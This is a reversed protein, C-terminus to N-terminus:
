RRAIDRPDRAGTDIGDRITRRAERNGLGATAAAAILVATVATESVAGAGVLRGLRLAAAFLRRHRGGPPTAAVGRAEGEVAATVYATLGGELRIPRAPAPPPPTLLDVLWPPMAPLDDPPTAHWRYRGGSPHVSPPAVIYGGDGRVDLGDGLDRVSNRVEVGPHALYAHWGGSGTRVWAAQFRGHREVLARLSAEGERGDVDLVVLGSLVGTRLGVNARPCSAWWRAILAPDTSAQDKGHPVLHGVPHKAPSGCEHAPCACRTPGAMPWWVPLVPWGRAAYALAAGALTIM